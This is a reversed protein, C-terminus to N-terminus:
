EAANSELANAFGARITSCPAGRTRSTGLVRNQCRKTATGELLQQEKAFRGARQGQLSVSHAPQHDNQSSRSVIDRAEPAVGTVSTETGTPNLQAKAFHTCVLESGDKVTSTPTGLPDGLYRASQITPQFHPWLQTASAATVATIRVDKRMLPGEFDTGDDDSM